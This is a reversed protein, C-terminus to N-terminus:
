GLQKLIKNLKRNIAELMIGIHQLSQEGPIGGARVIRASDNFAEEREHEDSRDDNM